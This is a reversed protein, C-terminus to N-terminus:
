KNLEDVYFASPILIYRCATYIHLVEIYENFAKTFLYQNNKHTTAWWLPSPKSILLQYIRSPLLPPKPASKPTSPVIMRHTHKQTKIPPCCECCAAIHSISKFGTVVRPTTMLFTTQNENQTKTKRKKREEPFKVELVKSPVQKRRNTARPIKSSVSETKELM